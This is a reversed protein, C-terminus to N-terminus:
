RRCDGALGAAEVGVAYGLVLETWGIAEAFNVEDAGQTDLEALGLDAEIWGESSQFFL